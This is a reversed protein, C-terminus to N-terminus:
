GHPEVDLVGGGPPYKDADGIKCIAPFVGGNVLQRIQGAKTPSFDNFPTNDKFTVTLDGDAKFIVSQGVHLPNPVDAVVIPNGEADKDVRVQIQAPEFDHKPQTAM